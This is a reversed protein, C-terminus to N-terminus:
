RDAFLPAIFDWWHAHAFGGHVLLLGPKGAQGWRLYHIRAGDVEVFCDEFPAAVARAFWAPPPKGSHISAASAKHVQVGSEAGADQTQASPAAESLPARGRRRERVIPPTIEKEPSM